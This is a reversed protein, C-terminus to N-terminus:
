VTLKLKYGRTVLRFNPRSEPLGNGCFRQNCFRSRYHGSALVRSEGSPSKEVFNTFRSKFRLMRDGGSAIRYRSTCGGDYDIIM